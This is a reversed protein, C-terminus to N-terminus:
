IYEPNDNLRKPILPSVNKYYFFPLGLLVLAHAIQQLRVCQGNSCRERGTLCINDGCQFTFADVPGGGRLTQQEKKSMEKVGNIKLIAKM